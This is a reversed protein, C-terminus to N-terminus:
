NGNNSLRRLITQYSVPTGYEESLQRAIRKAGYGKKHLKKIAGMPIDLKPRGKDGPSTQVVRAKGKIPPKNTDNLPSMFGAPTSLRASPKQASNKVSSSQTLPKVPSEMRCTWRWGKSKSTKACEPCQGVQNLGYTMVRNGCDICINLWKPGSPM